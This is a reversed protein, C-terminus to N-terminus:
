LVSLAVCSPPFFGFCGTLSLRNAQSPNEMGMWVFDYWVWWSGLPVPLPFPKTHALKGMLMQTRHRCSWTPLSLNPPQLQHPTMAHVLTPRPSGSPHCPSTRAEGYGCMSAAAMSPCLSVHTEGESDKGLILVSVPLPFIGLWEALSWCCQPKNEQWILGRVNKRNNM